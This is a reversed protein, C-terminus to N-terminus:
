FNEELRVQEVGSVQRIMAALNCQVKVLLMQVTQVAKVLCNISTAKKHLHRWASVNAGPHLHPTM